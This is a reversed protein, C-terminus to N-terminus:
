SALDSWVEVRQIHQDYTHLSYKDPGRDVFEHILYHALNAGYYIIDTGMISFVPNNLRRPEAALFRHGYIPLLKPWTALDGRVKQLAKSVAKPREGWRSLWFGDKEVSFEIGKRVWGIVDAYKKEDFNLWPFLVSGPDRINQLLFAFDDPIQFGLKAEILQIDLVSLGGEGYVVPQQNGVQQKANLLAFVKPGLELM